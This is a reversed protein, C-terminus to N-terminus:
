TRHAPYTTGARPRTCFPTLELLSHHPGPARDEGRTPITDNARIWPRPQPVPHKNVLGAVGCVLGRRAVMSHGRMVQKICEQRDAGSSMDRAFEIFNVKELTSPDFRVCYLTRATAEGGPSEFVM